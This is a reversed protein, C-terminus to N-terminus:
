RQILFNETRHFDPKAGAHVLAFYQKVGSRENIIATLSIEFPVQTKFGSLVAKFTRGDWQIHQLFIDQCLQPPQPTRYNSFIYGNWAPDLSFNFEYYSASNPERLFFEFCTAQWLNDKRPVDEGQKSFAIPLQLVSQPDSIDFILEVQSGTRILDAQMFIESALKEFPVLNHM